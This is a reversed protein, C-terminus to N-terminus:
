SLSDKQNLSPILKLKEAYQQVKKSVAAADENQSFLRMSKKVSTRYKANDAIWAHIKGLTEKLAEPTIQKQEDELQKMLKKRAKQTKSSEPAIPRKNKSTMMM